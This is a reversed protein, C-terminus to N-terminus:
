PNNSVPINWIINQVVCGPPTVGEVFRYNAYDSNNFNEKLVIEMQLRVSSPARAGSYTTRYKLSVNRRERPSIATLREPIANMVQLGSISEGWFEVGSSDVLTSNFRVDGPVSGRPGRMAVALTKDANTNEFSLDVVYEGNGNVGQLRDLNVVLSSFTSNIPAFEKREKPELRSINLRILQPQVSNRPPRLRVSRRTNLEIADGGNEPLPPWAAYTVIWNPEIDLQLDDTQKLEIDMVGTVAKIPDPIKITITPAFDSPWIKPKVEPPPSQTIQPPSAPQAVAEKRIPEPKPDVRKPISLPASVPVPLTEKPPSPPLRAAKNVIFTLSGFTVFFM